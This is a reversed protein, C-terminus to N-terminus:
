TEPKIKLLLDTSLKRYFEVFKKKDFPRKMKPFTEFNEAALIINAFYFEFLGLDKEKALKFLEDFNLKTKTLILYLDVYDKVELRGFLTLIKNSGINELSDVRVGGVDVIKGFHRPIEKVLDIRQVWREDESELYIECYTEFRVKIAMKSKTEKAIARMTNELAALDLDGLTFFDFDKSERHALYFASLATGGTLFFPKGFPSAFFTKLISVQYPLLIPNNSLKYM